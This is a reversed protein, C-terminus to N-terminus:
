YWELVIYSNNKDYGNLVCEFWKIVEDQTIKSSELYPFRENFEKPTLEKIVTYISEFNDISIEMYYNGYPKFLDVGFLETLFRDITDYENHFFGSSYEVDYKTCYHLNFSM